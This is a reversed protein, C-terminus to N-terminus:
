APPQVKLVLDASGLLGAADIEVAAGAEVFAGDPFYAAEGAGREVAIEIGAKVLKRCSEPVLAVRREGERIERVVAIKM